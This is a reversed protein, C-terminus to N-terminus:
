RRGSARPGRAFKGAGEEAVDGDFGLYMTKGRCGGSSAWEAIEKTAFNGQTAVVDRFGGLDYVALLDDQGEVLFIKEALLAAQNYGMFNWATKKLPQAKAKKNPDKLGFYVINENRFDRCPYVFVGKWARDMFGKGRGVIMGIDRLEELAVGNEESWRIM